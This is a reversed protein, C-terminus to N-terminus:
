GDSQQGNQEGCVAGLFLSLRFIRELSSPDICVLREIEVEPIRAM